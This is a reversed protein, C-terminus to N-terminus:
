LPLLDLIKRDDHLAGVAVHEIVPLQLTYGVAVGDPLSAAPLPRLEM